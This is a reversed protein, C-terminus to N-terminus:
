SKKKPLRGYHLRLARIHQDPRLVPPIWLSRKSSLVLRDLPTNTVWYGWTRILLVLKAKPQMVSGPKASEAMLRTRMSLIADGRHLDSGEAVRVLFEDALTEGISVSAFAHFGALISPPLWGTVNKVYPVVLGCSEALQPVRELYDLMSAKSDLSDPVMMDRGPHTAPQAEATQNCRRAAGVLMHSNSYGCFHVYDGMGRVKGSDISHMTKDADIGRAVFTEFSKDANICAQLRHQGDILLGHKDLKITEGNLEWVNGVIDAEYQRVTKEAITRNRITKSLMKRAMDPTIIEMTVTVKNAVYRSATKM